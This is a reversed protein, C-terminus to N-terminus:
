ALKLSAHYLHGRFQRLNDRILDSITLFLSLLVWLYEILRDRTLINVIRRLNYAIFMFGVDASARSIGKKTLIYSFGCQRKLTGFPHEVIAQRKKYLHEKYIACCFVNGARTDAPRARGFRSRAAGDALRQRGISPSATRNVKDQYCSYDRYGFNLLHSLNAGM